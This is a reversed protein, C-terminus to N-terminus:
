SSIEISIRFSANAAVPEESFWSYSRRPNTIEPRKRRRAGGGGKRDVAIPFSITSRFGPEVSSGFFAEWVM